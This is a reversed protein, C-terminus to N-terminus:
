DVEEDAEFALVDDERVCAKMQALGSVEELFTSDRVAKTVFGLPDQAYAEVVAPSCCICHDFPETLLKLVTFDSVSGRITHPTAGLPSTNIENVTSSHPAAFQKPHQLLAALLEVCLSSSLTAVGPRSVTCQQDLTMNAISNSPASIDNCFYCALPPGGCYSHRMVVFSDFGLAVCVALPPCNTAGGNTSAVPPPPTSAPPSGDCLSSSSCSSSSSPVVNASLRNRHNVLLSPLWRSERSDTLLLVIDHSGILSDLEMLSKELSTSDQDAAYRAHGPMPIDLCVAQCNADPRIELLRDRAAVAKLRGSGGQSAADQHTYLHQRVPNSMAVRGSDVFTINRVGWGLLTRAVACGVTGAGLLLVRLCFLRDLHLAPVERWKMLQINLEVAKSQIAASELFDRLHVVFVTTYSVPRDHGGSMGATSPLPRRMWGASVQYAVVPRATTTPTLASPLSPALFVDKDPVAIYFIVSTINDALEATRGVSTDETLSLLHTDRFALLPVVQRFLSFGVSLAFLFNRSPWGLSSLGGVGGGGGCSDMIVVIHWVVVDPSSTDCWFGETSDVVMEGRRMNSLDMVRCSDRTDMNSENTMNSSASVVKRVLFAGGSVMRHATLREQEREEGRQACQGVPFVPSGPSASLSALWRLEARTFSVAPTTSNPPSPIPATPPANPKYPPVLCHFDVLPSTPSRDSHSHDGNRIGGSGSLDGTTINGTIGSSAVAHPDSDGISTAPALTDMSEPQKNPHELNTSSSPPLVLRLVPLAVSYYGVFNKIDIFTLLLFPSLYELLGVMPPHPCCCDSLDVTLPNPGSSSPFHAFSSSAESYAVPSAAIKWFEANTVTSGNNGGGEEAFLPALHQSAFQQVVASRSAAKFDDLTNFNKLWGVLRVGESTVSSSPLGEANPTSLSPPLSSGTAEHSTAQVPRAFCQSNDIRLIGGGTISGGGGVAYRGEVQLWPNLLKWVHLKTHALQQWWDVSLVACDLPRYRLLSSCSSPPSPCLSVSTM